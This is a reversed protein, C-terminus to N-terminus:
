GRRCFHALRPSRECRRPSARPSNRRFISRMWGTRDCRRMSLLGASNTIPVTGLLNHLRDYVKVAFAEGTNENTLAFTGDPLNAGHEGNTVNVFLEAHGDLANLYVAPFGFTDDTIFLAGAVVSERPGRTARFTLETLANSSADPNVYFYYTTGPTVPVQMPQNHGVELDNSSGSPNWETPTAIPGVFVDIQPRFGTHGGITAYAEVGVVVDDPQATYAFWAVHDRLVAVSWFLANPPAQNTHGVDCSYTVGGLKALDGRFGSGIDASGLYARGSDWDLVNTDDIVQTVVTEYAPGTNVAATLDTALSIYPNV